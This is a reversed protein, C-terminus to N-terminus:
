FLKRSIYRISSGEVLIAGSFLIAELALFLFINLHFRFWQDLILIITGINGEVM